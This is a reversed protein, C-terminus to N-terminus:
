SPAQSASAVAHTYFATPLFQNTTTSQEPEFIDRWVANTRERRSTMPGAIAPRGSTSHLLMAGHALIRKSFPTKSQQTEDPTSAEVVHQPYDISSSAHPTVRLKASTSATLTPYLSQRASSNPQSTRDHRPTTKTRCDSVHLYTPLAAHASQM